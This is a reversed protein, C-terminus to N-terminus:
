DSSLPGGPEGTTRDTVSIGHVRLGLVREDPGMGRDVPRFSNSLLDIRLISDAAAPAMDSVEFSFEGPPTSFSDRFVTKGNLRVELDAGEPPIDLISLAVRRVVYGEPLPMELWAAGDTWRYTGAENSELGHFGGRVVKTGAAVGLELTGTSVPRDSLTVGFLMLGLAREDSGMGEEGAPVFAGNEVRLDLTSENFDPPLEIEIRGPASGYFARHVEVGNVQVLLRCGRPPLSRIDLSVTRPRYGERLPIKLHWHDKTWRFPGFDNSEEGYFGSEEVRAVPSHGVTINGYGLAPDYPAKKSEYLNLHFANHRIETPPPTTTPAIFDFAFFFRETKEAEILSDRTAQTLYYVSEGQDTNERIVTEVLSPIRADGLNIRVVRHGLGPYLPDFFLTSTDAFVLSGPRIHADLRALFAEAGRNEKFFLFGSSRPLLVLALILAVGLAAGVQGKGSFRHRTFSEFGLGALLACGPIVVPVFRRVAWIHDPSISPDYLYLASFGVWISIPLLWARILRGRLFAWVAVILGILALLAAPESLYAVLNVLSDERFTRGRGPDATFLAFPETAPRMWYAWALLSLLLGVVCLAVPRRRLFGATWQRIRLNLFVPAILVLGATLGLIRLLLPGISHFYQRAFFSYSFAGAAFVILVVWEVTLLLRLDSPGSDAPREGWILVAVLAVALIPAFVLGDIRIWFVAGLLLGGLGVMRLRRASWGGVLCLMAAAVFHQASIESLTIRPMWLQAPNCVFVLLAIWTAPRSLFRRALRYGLPLTLAALVPNFGLVGARGFVGAAQAMWITYVPPFQGEMRTPSFNLNSLNQLFHLPGFRAEGFREFPFAIWVSGTRAIHLAHNAYGGQDRGGLFSEGTYVLSLIGYGTAVALVLWGSTSVDLKRLDIRWGPLFVLLATLGWGVLGFAWPHFVGMAGALLMPVTWLLLGASPALVLRDPRREVGLYECVRYGTALVGPIWGAAMLAEAWDMM